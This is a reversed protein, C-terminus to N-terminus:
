IINITQATNNNIIHTIHKNSSLLLELLEFAKVSPKIVKPPIKTVHQIADNPPIYNSNYFCILIILYKIIKILLILFM